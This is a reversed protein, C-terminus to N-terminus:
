HDYHAEIFVNGGKLWLGFENTGLMRLGLGVVVTERSRREVDMKKIVSGEAEEESRETRITAKIVIKSSTPMLPEVSAVAFPRAADWSYYLVWEVQKFLQDQPHGTERGATRSGVAAM